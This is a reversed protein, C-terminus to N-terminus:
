DNQPHLKLTRVGLRTLFRTKQGASLERTYRSKVAEIWRIPRKGMEVPVTVLVPGAIALIGRIKAELDGPTLEVHTLGMAKALSAYDLRALMTATTRKYASQQLIQMYTY